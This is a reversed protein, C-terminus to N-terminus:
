VSTLDRQPSSIAVLSSDGKWNKRLKSLTNLKYTPIIPSYIQIGPIIVLRALGEEFVSEM